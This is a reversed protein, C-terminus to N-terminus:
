RTGRNASALDRLGDALLGLSGVTLLIALGSALGVWPATAAVPIADTLLRGWSPLPPQTGLGLFSLSAEALLAYSFGLATQIALTSSINPLIQTFLIRSGREGLGRSAVVFASGSIRIVEGRVVRAFYPALVVTMAVVVQFSGKGLVSMLAIALILSPLAVAVELTRSIVFDVVGGLYGALLGLLGGIVVTSTTTALSLVLTKRGSFLIRAFVDRGMEDAGFPHSWSPSQFVARVNMATPDHRALLPAAVCLMVIAALVCLGVLGRPGLGRAGHVMADVSRRRRAAPAAVEPGVATTTM